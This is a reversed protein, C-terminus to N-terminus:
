LACAQMPSHFTACVRRYAAPVRDLSGHPDHCTVCSLRSGGKRFCASRALYVPQFRVNWAKSPNPQAGGEPARHCEGCLRNIEVPTMRAPNRIPTAPHTAHARGPGHCAECRVSSELPAVNNGGTVQPPGTSHCRFCAVIGTDSDLSRYLHGAALSLRNSRLAAHGPTAAFGSTQRYWSFYHEIHWGEDIRSVFTVAQQGAGFAWEVPLEISDSGDSVRVSFAGGRRSFDLRYRPPRFLPDRPAFYRALPHDAARSLSKAHASPSQATFQASHCAGCAAAGVYGATDAALGSPASHALVIAVATWRALKMEDGRPRAPPKGRARRPMRM